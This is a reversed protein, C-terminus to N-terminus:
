LKKINEIFKRPLKGLLLFTLFGTLLGGVIATALLVPAYALVYKSGYFLIATLTQGAIHFIAGAVATFPLYQPDPSRTGDKKRPLIGRMIAMATCALVGGVLGYAASLLSGTILAALFCRLVAIIYADPIRWSGGVYLVFLTIINGLGVRIGAIPVIPPLITELASLCAAACIFIAMVCLKKINM